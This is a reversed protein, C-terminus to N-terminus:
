YDPNIDFDNLQVPFSRRFCNMQLFFNSMSSFNVALASDLGIHSIPWVARPGTAAFLSKGMTKWYPQFVIKDFISWVTLM